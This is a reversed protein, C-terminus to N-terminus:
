DGFEALYHRAQLAIVALEYIVCPLYESQLPWGEFLRRSGVM